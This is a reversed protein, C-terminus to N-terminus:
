SARLQMIAGVVVGITGLVMLWFTFGFAATVAQGIASVGTAASILAPLIVFQFVLILLSAGGTVLIAVCARADTSLGTQRANYWQWAAVIAAVAALIMELWLAPGAISAFACTSSASSSQQMYSSYQSCLSAVTGFAGAVQPGSAGVSGASLYSPLFFSIAAIAGCITAITVGLLSARQQTLPRLPTSYAAPQLPMSPSAYSGYTYPNVPAMGQPQGLPTSPLAPSAYALPMSAPAAVGPIPQQRGCSSCFAADVPMANGCYACFRSTPAAVPAAVPTPEPKTAVNQTSPRGTIAGSMDAGDTFATDLYADSINAGRLIASRLDTRAFNCRSLDAGSLDAGRLVAGYFNADRLDVNRLDAGALNWYAFTRNGSAYAALAQAATHATPQGAQSQQSDYSM